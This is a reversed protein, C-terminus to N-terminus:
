FYLDLDSVGETLWGIRFPQPDPNGFVYDFFKDEFVDRIAERYFKPRNEDQPDFRDLAM